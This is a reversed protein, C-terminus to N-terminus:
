TPQTSASASLNKPHSHISVGCLARTDGSNQVSFFAHATQVPVKILNMHNIEPNAQIALTAAEEPSSAQVNHTKQHGDQFTLKAQYTNVPLASM